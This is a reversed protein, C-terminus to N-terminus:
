AGTVDELPGRTLALVEDTSMGPGAAGVLGAFRSRPLAGGETLLVVCGDPALEFRVTSGPLIGLRDLVAKPITVQGKRTVLNGM